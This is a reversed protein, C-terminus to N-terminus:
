CNSRKQRLNIKRKRTSNSFDFRGGRMSKRTAKKRKQEHKDWYIKILDEPVERAPINEICRNGLKVKYQPNPAMLLEEKTTVKKPLHDIITEVPQKFRKLSELYRRLDPNNALVVNRRETTISDVIEADLFQKRPAEPNTHKGKKLEEKNGLPIPWSGIKDWPPFYQIEYFHRAEAIVNTITAYHYNNDRNDLEGFGELNAPKMKLITNIGYRPSTMKQIPSEAFQTVDILHKKKDYATLPFVIVGKIFQADDYSSLEIIDFTVMENELDSHFIANKPIRIRDGPILTVDDNIVIETLIKKKVKELDALTVKFKHMLRIVPVEESIKLIEVTETGANGRTEKGIITQTYEGKRSVFVVSRKTSDKKENKDLQEKFIVKGEDLIWDYEKGDNTLVSTDKHKYKDRNKVFQAAFVEQVKKQFYWTPVEHNDSIIFKQITKSDKTSSRSEYYEYNSKLAWNEIDDVPKLIKLLDGIEINYDVFDGNEDPEAPILWIHKKQFVSMDINKDESDHRQIVGYIEGSKLPQGLAFRFINKKVDILLYKTPSTPNPFSFIRGITVGDKVLLENESFLIEKIKKASGKSQDLSNNNDITEVEIIRDADFAPSNRLGKNAIVQAINNYRPDKKLRKQVQEDSPLKVDLLYPVKPSLKWIYKPKLEIKKGVTAHAFTAIIDMAFGCIFTIDEKPILYWESPADTGFRINAAKFFSRFVSHCMQEIYHNIQNDNTGVKSSDFYYLFHVLFGVENGMGPILFTQAGQIRSLTPKESKGLKVYLNGGLEKSIIYIYTMPNGKLAGFEDYEVKTMLSEIYQFTEDNSAFERGSNKLASMEKYATSNTLKGKALGCNEGKRQKRDHYYINNECLAM